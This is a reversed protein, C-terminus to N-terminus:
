HKDLEVFIFVFVSVAISDLLLTDTPPHIFRLFIKCPLKNFPFPLSKTENSIYCNQFRIYSLLLAHSHITHLMLLPHILSLLVRPKNQLSVHVQFTCSPHILHIEECGGSASNAYQIESLKEGFQLM